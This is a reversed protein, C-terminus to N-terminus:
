YYVTVEEIKKRSRPQPKEAPAGIPLMAVPRIGPSLNLIEAAKKENFAGIWCSGLQMSTVTLLMNEVAAATDQLAYTFRGREGYSKEIYDLDACVVIVVPADQMFPQHDAELALRSKMEENRVVMFRWCQTNGASPALIAAELILKVTKENIPQNSDFKRISHRNRITELLEM